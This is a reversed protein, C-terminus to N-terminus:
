FVRLRGLRSKSLRSKTKGLLCGARQLLFGLKSVWSWDVEGNALLFFLGGSNDVLM